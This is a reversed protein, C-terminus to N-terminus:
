TTGSKFTTITQRIQIGTSHGAIHRSRLELFSVRHTQGNATTPQEPTPTVDGYFYSPQFKLLPL